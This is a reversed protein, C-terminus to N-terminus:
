FDGVVSFWVDFDFSFSKGFQKQNKFSQFAFICKKFKKPYQEKFIQWFPFSSFYGDLFM